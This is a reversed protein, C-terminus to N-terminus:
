PTHLDKVEKASNLGGYKIRTSTIKFPSMNKSEKKKYKNVALM